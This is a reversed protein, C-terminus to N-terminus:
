AINNIIIKQSVPKTTVGKKGPSEKSKTAPAIVANGPIGKSIFIQPFPYGLLITKIFDKNHVDRWVLNRQFYADPILKGSRVDNVLDLLSISRVRYDVM